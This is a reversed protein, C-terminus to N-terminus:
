EPFDMRPTLMWRRFRSSATLRIMKLVPIRVQTISSEGPDLFVMRHNASNVEYKGDAESQSKIGTEVLYYWGTDLNNWAIKGDNGTTKESVLTFDDALETDNPEYNEAFTNDSGTYKYLAFKVGQLNKM